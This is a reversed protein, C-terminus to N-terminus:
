VCRSTYLLCPNVHVMCHKVTPFRHEIQDHVMQAIQHAQNLTQEGDARIEIDVYVRDGFLRTKIQDIGMVGPQEMITVRMEEETKEDCSQDTM